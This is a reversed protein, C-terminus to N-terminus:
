QAGSKRNPHAQAFVIGGDPLVRRGIRGAAALRELAARVMDLPEERSAGALWWRQIGDATDAAYPHAALYAEVAQAIAQVRDDEASM